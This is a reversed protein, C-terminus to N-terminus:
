DTTSNARHAPPLGLAADLAADLFASEEPSLSRRSVAAYIAGDSPTMDRVGKNYGEEEARILAQRHDAEMSWMARMIHSDEARYQALHDELKRIYTILHGEHGALKCAPTEMQDAGFHERARKVSLFVEDCHFCRWQKRM